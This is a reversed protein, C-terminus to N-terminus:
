LRPRPNWPPRSMAAGCTSFKGSDRQRTGGRGPLAQFRLGDKAVCAGM